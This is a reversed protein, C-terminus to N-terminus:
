DDKYELEPPIFLAPFQSQELLEKPVSGFIIKHLHSKPTVGGIIISARRERAAMMIQEVTGGVYLHPEAKIGAAELEACTTDLKKRCEKRIKQIEMASDSRLSKEAEVHIVIIDEIVEKMGILYLVARDSVSTWDVALLPRRFPNANEGGTQASSKYILLPIGSRQLIETIEISSNFDIKGKKQFGTVILDAGEEEAVSLVKPMTKGVLIHAGVEMGQEFLTEAWDIFKINAMEKLKIVDNQLYGSGRQMAVRDRDIVYLFVVHNLGSERLVMLTQLTDFWLENFDTVFLLKNIKM